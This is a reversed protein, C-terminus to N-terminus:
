KLPETGNEGPQIAGTSLKQALEDFRLGENMRRAGDFRFRSLWRWDDATRKYAAILDDVTIQMDWLAAPLDASVPAAPSGLHAQLESTQSAQDAAATGLLYSARLTPHVNDLFMTRDLIGFPTHPRLVDAADLCPIDFAAAVEAIQRCFDGNARAPMGDDDRARQFHRQAPQYQKLNVLCEGLRFHFEAFNPQEELLARYVDGAKEWEGAAELARAEDYRRILAQQEDKSTGDLVTSRDPEYVSESCAPVMWQATIGNERCYTAFQELQSRFREVRQIYTLPEAIPHDMLTRDQGVILSRVAYRAALEKNVLYFTPSKDLWRDLPFFLTKSAISLEEVDYHFENHGAYLLIHNPRFELTKLREFALKLNIGEKALNHVVIKKGPYMRRLQWEYVAPIGFRSHFEKTDDVKAVYPWGLMSSEGLAAVHFEGEPAAKALVPIALREHASKITAAIPEAIFLVLLCAFWPKAMRLPKRVGCRRRWIWWLVVPAGGIAFTWCGVVAIRLVVQLLRIWAYEFLHFMVLGAVAMVFANLAAFILKGRRTRPLGWFRVIVAMSVVHLSLVWFHWEAVFPRLLNGPRHTFVIAVTLAILVLTSIVAFRNTRDGRTRAVPGSASCELSASM